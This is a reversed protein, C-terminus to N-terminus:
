FSHFYMILRVPCHHDYGAVCVNCTSCHVTAQPRFSDCQDCFTWQRSRAHHYKRMLGPDSVFVTLFTFVTLLAIVGFVIQEINTKACYNFVMWTNLLLLLLTCMACPWDPGLVILRYGKSRSLWEGIIVVFGDVRYRIFTTEDGDEPLQGHAAFKDHFQQDSNNHVLGSINNNSASRGKGTDIGGNLDSNSIYAGDVAESDALLHQSEVVDATTGYSKHGSM